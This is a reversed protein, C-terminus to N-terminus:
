QKSTIENYLGFLFTTRELDSEFAKKRYAKEVERDLQDHAKVLKPPMTLPDYLEALTSGEFEKRVDLVNQAAKEIKEIQAPSVDTPWPFNNYVIGISYRYRSELRGCVYRVWAMHMSSTLIGFHYLRADSSIKVANSALTNRDIFGMPIYKRNESSTEPILIYDSQPINEIFFRTPTSAVKKTQVRKSKERLEKVKEVRKLCEPMKKLEGPPCKGLYLCFRVYGKIFEDSGVWSYFYKKSEPEKAIFKEMEAKEFLYQGGDIPQNGITINPVDSIPKTRNTLFLDQDNMLYANIHSVEYSMVDGTLGNSHHYLKCPLDSFSFGIIVVHVAANGRAENNWRFTNYAFNIKLGEDFLPKWLPTVQEGQSISNTSVFASRIKKNVIMMKSAKVYWAAVYDLIGSNKKFIMKMEEKQANSQIKSGGFPPNGLIYTLEEPAILDEWNVRLSNKNWITASATLPIRPEYIGFKEMMGLNMQHDMLWMAVRAIESSFEEIEIGYFQNVNVKSSFAIRTQKGYKADMVDMELLRLERYAIILFNGCGCAPDLIKINELKKWFDDLKKTNNRVKGFELRLDDLFLPRILKMINEESTYHAGLKRRKDSDMVGQFLSGFIAPSIASWNLKCGAKLQNRMKSNFSAIPLKERFLEGNIYPFKKFRESLTKYRKEEPTDLVQFLEGLESALNAGDATTGHIFDYFQDKEFIGTDDAFMCFVLRVLYVELDHGSYGIEKLADHLKAMEEAAKINVPDQKEHKVEEYGAIFGFLEINDVLRELKIDALKGTEFDTLLIRQFDSTIIYRPWESKKLGTTYDSAQTFAADLSKGLSKHEVILKGPWFLDIFGNDGDIKKVFQEFSGVRKRDVGFISFFENWFTQKQATESRDDKHELVFVAARRRIESWDLPRDNVNTIM